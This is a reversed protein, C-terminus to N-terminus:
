VDQVQFTKYKSFDKHRDYDVRIDTAMAVAPLALLWSTLAIRGLM